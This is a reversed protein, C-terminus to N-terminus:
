ETDSSTPKGFYLQWEPLETIKKRKGEKLRQYDDPHPAWWIDPPELNEPLIEFDGWETKEDPLKEDLDLLLKELVPLLERQLEAKPSLSLYPRVYHIGWFNPATEDDIYLQEPFYIGWIEEDNKHRFAYCRIGDNGRRVM